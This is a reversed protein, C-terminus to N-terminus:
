TSSIDGVDRVSLLWKPIMQGQEGESSARHSAGAELAELDQGLYPHPEVGSEAAADSQPFWQVDRTEPLFDSDDPSATSPSPAFGLLGRSCASYMRSTDIQRVARVERRFRETDWASLRAILETGDEPMILFLRLAEEVDSWMVGADACKMVGMMRSVMWIREYSIHAEIGRILAWLLHEASLSCDLDDDEVFRIFTTLFKETKESFDGYEAITANLYMLCALRCNDVARRKDPSSYGTDIPALARFMNTGPRFCTLRMPYRSHHTRDDESTPLARLAGAKRSMFFQIFEDCATAFATQRGARPSGNEATALEIFDDVYAPNGIPSSGSLAIFSRRYTLM